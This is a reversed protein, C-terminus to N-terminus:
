QKGETQKVEFIESDNFEFSNSSVVITLIIEAYANKKKYVRQQWSRTRKAKTLYAPYWYKVTTLAEMCKQGVINLSDQKTAYSYIYKGKKDVVVRLQVTDSRDSNYDYSYHVTDTFYESYDPENNPISTTTDTVPGDGKLKDSGIFSAGSFIPRPNGPEGDNKLKNDKKFYILGNKLKGVKPAESQKTYVFYDAQIKCYANRDPRKIKITGRNPNSVSDNQAHVGVAGLVILSGFLFFKILHM